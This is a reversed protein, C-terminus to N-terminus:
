LDPKQDDEILDIPSKVKGLAKGTIHLYISTTSAASHGLFRQIYYLDTGAELLHTAFSHRLTHVTASKKIAAKHISNKFTKQISSVSIPEALIRGPFLWQDPRYVKWYVRLIEVTRMGLLTYRDNDGKGRVRIMMRKSDIDTVKLHAAESVRLGGSYISMLIARHKLNKTASFISEVEQRSLVVPLRKGQKSRPIKSTNWTRQLTTEYFFKLASYAQNISSQSSKKEKLLYYLYDRIQDDGMLDPSKGFHITFSRMWGLYSEITRLSLNKLEMDMKMQDNLTGM